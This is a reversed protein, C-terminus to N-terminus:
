ATSFRGQSVCAAQPVAGCRAAHLNGQEGVTAGQIPNRGMAFSQPNLMIRVMFHARRHFPMQQMPFPKAFMDKKGVM